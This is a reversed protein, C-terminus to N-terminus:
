LEELKYDSSGLGIEEGFRVQKYPDVGNEQKFVDKKVEHILDLSAMDVAVADDSVMYGIDPCIITGAFPDCDCGAAIRKLENVYLVNKGEVCAKASLALLYQLDADKYALADYQCAVVCKGCGLCKRTNREWSDGVSIANFPCVDVCQGCLTCRDAFYNPECGGHIMDKTERTVGGMGFNKIAGGFGSQVHGKVHSIAVIHSADAIEAAVEFDHQEVSKTVGEDGIVVSCGVKKKTFGHLRAVQEYGKKSRRLSNYKVTTDFLFPQAGLKKVVAVVEKVFAPRPFYKNKVEGMHLKVPVHKAEFGQVDFENVAKELKDIDEFFVVTSSM